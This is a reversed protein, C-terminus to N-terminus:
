FELERSTVDSSEALAWPTQRFSNHMVLAGGDGAVDFNFASSREFFEKTLKGSEFSKDFLTHSPFPSQNYKWNTPFFTLCLFSGVVFHIFERNTFSHSKWQKTRPNINILARESRRKKRRRKRRSKFNTFCCWVAATAPSFNIIKLTSKAKVKLWGAPHCSILKKWIGGWGCRRM